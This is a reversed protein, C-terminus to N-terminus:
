SDFIRHIKSATLFRHNKVCWVLTNPQELFRQNKDVETKKILRKKMEGIYIEGSIEEGPDLQNLFKTSYEDSKDKSGKQIGLDLM